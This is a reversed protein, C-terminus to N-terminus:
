TSPLSDTVCKIEENNPVISSLLTLLTSLWLLLLQMGRDPIRFKLQFYNLFLSMTYAYPAKKIATDRNENRLSEDRNVEADSESLVEVSGLEEEESSVAADSDYVLETENDIEFGQVTNLHLEESSALRSLSYTASATPDHLAESPPAIFETGPCGNRQSHRYFVSRSLEQKCKWCKYRKRPRDM